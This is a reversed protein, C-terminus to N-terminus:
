FIESKIMKVIDHRGCILAQASSIDSFSYHVQFGAEKLIIYGAAVDWQYLNLEFFALLRNAAVYSMCLAASGNRYPLYGLEFLSTLAKSIKRKDDRYSTGFALYPMPSHEQEVLPQASASLRTSNLFAGQSHYASFCEKRIPDYILGFLISGKRFAAISICWGFVGTSFSHTGDIPDILWTYESTDTFRHFSSEESIITDSPFIDSISSKIYEDVILDSSTLVDGEKKHECIFALNNFMELAIDGAGAIVQKAHVFRENKLM